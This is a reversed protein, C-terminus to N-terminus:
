LALPLKIHPFPQLPSPLLCANLLGERYATTGVLWFTGGTRFLILRIEERLLLKINLVLGNVAFLCYAFEFLSARGLGVWKTLSFQLNWLPWAIVLPLTLKSNQKEGLPFASSCSTQSESRNRLRGWGKGESLPLFVVVFPFFFAM